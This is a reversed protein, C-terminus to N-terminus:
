VDKDGKDLKNEAYYLWCDKLVMATLISLGVAGEIILVVGIALLVIIM